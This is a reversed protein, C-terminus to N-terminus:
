YDTSLLEPPTAEARQKKGPGAAWAHTCSTVRVALAFVLQVAAWIQLVHTDRRQETYISGDTELRSTPHWYEGGIWSIAHLATELLDRNRM